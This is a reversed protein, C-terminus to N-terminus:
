LAGKLTQILREYVDAFELTYEDAGDNSASLLQEPWGNLGINVLSSRYLVM